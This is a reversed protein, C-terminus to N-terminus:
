DDDETSQMVELYLKFEQEAEDRKDDAIGLSDALRMFAKRRLAAGKPASSKGNAGASKMLQAALSM